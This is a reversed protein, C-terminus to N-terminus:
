GARMRWAAAGSFVLGAMCLWAFTDGIRAYVTRVGRTPVQAIMTRDTATYHDMSTLTRGQYDAALSLGGSTHRVLNFGQEVGRLRAMHTHWPDIARWDNSPALLIDVEQRGAQRILGPFDMDFCIAAGVRGHLTAVSKIRGDDVASMAAEPGPVPNAKWFEWSVNGQPDILVIKNELPKSGAPNWTGVALGLYIRNARALEAGRRILAPEDEKFAFANAEGWFVIRAGARAEREAQQLLDENIANGRRRIEETEDATATGAVARQAVEASPFLEVEPRTVSAIRVTTAEPPFLTLRTGGYALVLAMVAAFGVIGYRLDPWAFRREWAWNGVAAFWAIAFSIGYLGTISAIQLLVLNEYQTYAAAGWSGYPTFTAVLYEVSVWALPLVLTARFGGLRPLLARDVAFPLLNVLGYVAALVFYWIGPLPAMGRFQFSWTAALVLWGIALGWGAGVSRVFRLLFLPALWAAVPINNRGNAFLLLVAALALCILAHRLAFSPAPKREADLRITSEVASVAAQSTQM